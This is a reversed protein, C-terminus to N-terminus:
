LNEKYDKGNFFIISKINILLGENEILGLGFLESHPANLFQLEVVRSKLISIYDKKWKEYILNINAQM